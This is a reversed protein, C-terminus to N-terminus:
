WGLRQRGQHHFLVPEKGKQDIEVTTRLDVEKYPKIIYGHPQTMKAKSLTDKDAYATMYIIPVSIEKHIQISVDIGTMKGKLMIDMLILDPTKDKVIDLVKEGEAITGVVDYGLKELTVQIDKAVISEDEVILIKARKM